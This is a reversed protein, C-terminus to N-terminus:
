LSICVSLSLSLSTYIGVGFLVPSVFPGCCVDVVHGLVGFFMLANNM